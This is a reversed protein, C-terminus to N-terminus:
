RILNIDNYTEINLTTTNLIKINLGEIDKQISMEISIAKSINTNLNIEVLM